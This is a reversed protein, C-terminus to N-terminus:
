GDQGLTRAAKELIAFTRWANNLAVGDLTIQWPKGEPGPRVTITTAELNARDLEKRARAAYAEAEARGPSDDEDAREKERLAAIAAELERTSADAVRKKTTGGRATPVRVVLDPLSDPDLEGSSAAVYRVALELKETGLEVVVPESFTSAIRMYKYATARSIGLEREVYDDFTSYRAKFLLGEDNGALERGLKYAGRSMDAKYRLSRASSHDLRAVEEATPRRAGDDVVKESKMMSENTPSM